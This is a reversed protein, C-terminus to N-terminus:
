WPAVRFSVGISFAPRYEWKVPPTGSFGTPEPTNLIFGNTLRQVRGIHVGPSLLVKNLMITPGGFFEAQSTGSNSNVGIGGSLATSLMLREEKTRGWDVTHYWRYSGVRWNVFAMPFIQVRGSSTIGFEAVATPDGTTPDTSPVYTTGIVEKQQFTLLIGTSLSLLPLDQYQVSYNINDTTPTKMDVTSVCSLAGTLNDSRDTALGIDEFLHNAEDVFITTTLSKDPTYDHYNDQDTYPTANRSMGQLQYFSDQLKEAALYATRLTTQAGQLATLNNNLLTVLAKATDVERDIGELDAMTAPLEGSVEYNKHLLGQWGTLIDLNGQVNAVALGPTLTTRLANRIEIIEPVECDNHGVTRPPLCMPNFKKWKVGRYDRALYSLLAWSAQDTDSRDSRIENYASRSGTIKNAPDGNRFLGYLAQFQTYLQDSEIPPPTAQAHQDELHKQADLAKGVFNSADEFQTDMNNLMPGTFDAVMASTFAPGPAIAISGLGSITTLLTQFANTATTPTETKTISCYDLPGLGSVRLTVTKRNDVRVAAPLALPEMSDPAGQLDVCLLRDPNPLSAKKGECTPLLHDQAPAQASRAVCLALSIAVVITRHM